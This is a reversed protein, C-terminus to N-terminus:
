QETFTNIIISFHSRSVCIHSLQWNQVPLVSKRHQRDAVDPKIRHANPTGDFASGAKIASKCNNNNSGGDSNTCAKDKGSEATSVNEAEFAKMLTDWQQSTLAKGKDQQGTAGNGTLLDESGIGLGLQHGTTVSGSPAPAGSRCNTRTTVTHNEGEGTGCIKHSVN